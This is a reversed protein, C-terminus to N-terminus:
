KRERRKGEEETRGRDELGRKEDRERMGWKENMRLGYVVDTVHCRWCWFVSVHGVGDGRTIM